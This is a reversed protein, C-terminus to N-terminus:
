DNSLQIALDGLVLFLKTRKASPEGAYFEHLLRLREFLIALRSPRSFCHNLQLMKSFRIVKMPCSSAYAAQLTVTWHKLFVPIPLTWPGLTILTQTLNLTKSPRNYVHITYGTQSWQKLIIEAEPGIYTDAVVVCDVYVTRPSSQATSVWRHGAVARQIPKYYYNIGIVELKLVGNVWLKAIGNATDCFIEVCYWVGPSVTSTGTEWTNTWTGGNNYRLGWKQNTWHYVPALITQSTTELSIFHANWSTWTENFMGYGRMYLADYNTAFTKYAFAREGPADLGTAKLCYSGHHSKENTISVTADGYTSTGTWASFDGSEFGDQFIITFYQALYERQWSSLKPFIKEHVYRELEEKSKLCKPPVKLPFPFHEGCYPCKHSNPKVERRCRPCIYDWMPLLRLLWVPLKM